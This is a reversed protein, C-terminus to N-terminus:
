HRVLLDEFFGALERVKQELDFDSLVRERAALGMNHAVSPSELLQILADAIQQPDGASILLGTKGNQIIEPIGGVATAVTPRRFLGAELFVLGFAEERSPQLFVDCAQMWDGVNDTQGLFVVSDAVGCDVAKRTLREFDTSRGDGAIYLRADIERRRVLALAEISDDHGKIEGLHGVSLLVPGDSLGLHRRCASREVESGLATDVVGWHLVKIKSCPIGLCKNMVSKRQHSVSVYRDVMGFFLRHKWTREYYELNSRHMTAVSACGLLRGVLGGYFASGECHTDILDPRFRRATRYLNVLHRFDFGGGSRELVEWNRTSDFRATVWQPPTTFSVLKVEHGRAILGYYEEAIRKTRGGKEM